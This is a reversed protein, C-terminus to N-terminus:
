GPFDNGSGPRNLVSASRTMDGWGHKKRGLAQVLGWFRWVTMLPRYWFSETMAFVFLRNLDAPRKYKRFGWEELLVAGMSLLSGYLAMCAALLAAYRVNVDGLWLGWAVLVYGLLEILPGLLEVFVYYPMAVFGIGGYRPNFLMARHARLCEYLGRHWRTRQRYLVNATEPAETWCVPDPVYVIRAKSKREKVLRHLRVILEMDEGVTNTEYGGAEIVWDKRFVGFAGSVILLLNLRSMGIRGMLFARFYEIVQMVVFPNRSLRVGDERLYGSAIDSGNAIGVSGGSAIIDEGPKAEVIPKMVKLFADPDLVTDGDLSVFYPYRSLQIGANLADAKGGNEKDILFLNPHRLSYYVARIPMTPRGLRTWNIKHRVERMDFAAIMTELTSDRSGDNVVVLEFERYNIGLLSRVSSVIGTEENYAPVIITLPPAFASQLVDGYRIPKLGRERRLKRFSVAFLATYFLLVAAIYALM